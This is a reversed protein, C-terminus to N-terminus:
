PLYLVVGAQIKDAEDAPTGCDGLTTTIIQNEYGAFKTSSADTTGSILVAATGNLTTQEFNTYTGTTYKGDKWDVRATYSLGSNAGTCEGKPLTGSFTSTGTMLLDPGLTCLIEGTGHFIVSDPDDPNQEGVTDSATSTCVAPLPIPLNIAASASPAAGVLAGLCLAAATLKHNLRRM